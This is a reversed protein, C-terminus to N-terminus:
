YHDLPVDRWAQMQAVVDLLFQATDLGGAGGGRIRDRGFWIAYLAARAGCESEDQGEARAGGCECESEDQGDLHQSIDTFTRLCRPPKMRDCLFTEVLSPMCRTGMYAYEKNDWDICVVMWHMGTPNVTAVFQGVDPIATRPSESNLVTRRYCLCDEPDLVLTDAPFGAKSLVDAVFDAGSLGRINM